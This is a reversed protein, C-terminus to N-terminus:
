QQLSESLIRVHRQEEEIIERIEDNAALDRAWQELGTFFSIADEEKKLAKRLIEIKSETGSLEQSPDPNLAEKALGDLLRPDGSMYRDPYFTMVKGVKQEVRRKLDAFFQEHRSEWDALHHLVARLKTDEFFGAAKHYFAAGNREMKEAISLIEFASFQKNFDTM